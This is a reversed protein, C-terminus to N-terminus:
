SYIASLQANVVCSNLPLKTNEIASLDLNGSSAAAAAASAAQGAAAAAAAASSAGTPLALIVIM